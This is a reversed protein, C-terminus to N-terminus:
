KICRKPAVHVEMDTLRVGMKRGGRDRILCLELKLRPKFAM